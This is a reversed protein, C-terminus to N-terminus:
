FKAVNAEAEVEEIGEKAYNNQLIDSIVWFKVKWQKEREAGGSFVM